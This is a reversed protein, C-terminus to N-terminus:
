VISIGSGLIGLIKVKVVAGIDLINLALQNALARV